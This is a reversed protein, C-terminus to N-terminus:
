KPALTCGEPVHLIHTYTWSFLFSHNNNASFTPYKEMFGVELTSTLIMQNSANTAYAEMDMSSLVAHMLQGGM